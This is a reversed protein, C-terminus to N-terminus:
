SGKEEPPLLPFRLRFLAGRLPESEITVSAGHNELIAQVFSLGLGMGTSNGEYMANQRKTSFHTETCRRRIEATMGIGNDQVELVADNGERFTRVHVEGKWAAAAILAEKRKDPPLLDTRRAEQRLYNRMEFTADRANFVLNELAQQLHSLDGRVALPEPSADFHMTLKWKERAMETWTNGCDRVVSNLDLRGLESRSPDRRVTRLIQQLRETVIHLTQRVELLMWAQDKNLGESELCRSLLDNPRVLLNKINHAYSGAMIGISAYLQSRLELAHQQAEQTALRQELLERESEQHRQEANKRRLEEELLRKEATDIQRQSQIRQEARERERRQLINIWLVALVTAALALLSVWRLRREALQEDRQRKNFAHLLYEISLRAQAADKRHLQFQKRRVWDPQRPTKSDWVLDIARPPDFTIELRYITPFLPLQGQYMKTVDGLVRLQERIKDANISEEEPTPSQLYDHILGPLNERFVRAEEIWERLAAEDYAEDGHLRARFTEVALGLLLCWLLVPGALARLYAWFPRRPGEPTM